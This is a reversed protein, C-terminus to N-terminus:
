KVLTGSISKKFKAEGAEGAFQRVFWPTIREPLVRGLIKLLLAETWTIHVPHVSSDPDDSFVSLCTWESDTIGNIALDLREKNM